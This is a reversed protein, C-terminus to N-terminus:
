ATIIIAVEIDFIFRAAAFYRWGDRAHAKMEKLRGIGMYISQMRFTRWRCRSFRRAINQEWCRADHRSPTVSARAVRRKLEYQSDYDEAGRRGARGIITRIHLARGTFSLGDFPPVMASIFYPSFQMLNSLEAARFASKGRMDGLTMMPLIICRADMYRFAAYFRLYIFHGRYIIIDDGFIVIM